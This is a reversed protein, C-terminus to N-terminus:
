PGITIEAADSSLPPPQASRALSPSRLRRLTHEICAVAQQNGCREYSSLRTRYSHRHKLFDKVDHAALPRDLVARGLGERELFLANLTQEFIGQNPAVLLPKNLYLAESILTFGATCIVANSTTLDDLFGSLSPSKVQVNAHRRATDPPDSCYMIFSADVQQLTDIVHSAGDPHNYYVLVHDGSSPTRRQVAPRIIPPVLTTRAPHKLPAFFFSTLLVQEPDAPAVWRITAAALAAAPWCRVPLDYDMETVVQQHNFSVTPLGIRQAARSSFLEFDTILLDSQLDRFAETLRDLIAPMRLLIKGNCCLTKGYQIRNAEIVQRLAPVPIVREGEEELIRQATGGGCFTVAHGRQRLEAAIAM